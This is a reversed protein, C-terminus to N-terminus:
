RNNNPRGNQKYLKENRIYPKYDEWYESFRLTKDVIQFQEYSLNKAQSWRNYFNYGYKELGEYCILQWETPTKVNESLLKEINNINKFFGQETLNHLEDVLEKQNM